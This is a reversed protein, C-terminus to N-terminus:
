FVVLLTNQISVLKTIAGWEKNYEKFQQNYIMRYSNIFQQSVNPRSWYIRNFFEQKIFPVQKFASKQVAAISKKAGYNIHNSEVMHVTEDM